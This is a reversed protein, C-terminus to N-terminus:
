KELYVSKFMNFASGKDKFIKNADTIWKTYTPFKVSEGNKGPHEIIWREVEDRNPKMDEGRRVCYWIVFEDKVSPKPSPRSIHPPYTIGLADSVNDPTAEIAKELVKVLHLRVGEWDLASQPQGKLLLILEGILVRSEVHGNKTSAIRVIDLWKNKDYNDHYEDPWDQHLEDDDIPM